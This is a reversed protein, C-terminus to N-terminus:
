GGHAEPGARLHVDGPRGWRQRPQRPIPGAAHAHLWGLFALFSFLLFPLPPIVDAGIRNATSWFFTPLRRKQMHTRKEPGKEYVAASTPLPPHPTPPLPAKSRSCGHYRKRLNLLYSRWWCFRDYFLRMSPTVHRNHSRELRAHSRESTETRALRYRWPLTGHQEISM